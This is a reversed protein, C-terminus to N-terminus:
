YKYVGEGSKKGLKGEEVYRRLSISPLYKDEKKSEYLNSLINFCVDLGILDALALPGMLHNAGYRMCLDIDKATAINNELLIFSENIMAFLLRNVVYGPVNRIKIAKRGLREALNLVKVIYEDATQSTRAVEILKMSLVPNIFHVGLFRAKNKLGDSLKEINLSSTNSAIIANEKSFRDIKGLVDLKLGFDEFVAEIIIDMRGIEEYNDMFSINKLIRSQKAIDAKCYGLIEKQILRLAKESESVTKEILGVNIGNEALLIAIGRGMQGGGIVCANSIDIM